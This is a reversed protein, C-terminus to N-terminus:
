MSSYMIGLYFLHKNYLGYDTFAATLARLEQRKLKLFSNTKRSVAASLMPAAKRAQRCVTFQELTTLIIKQAARSWRNFISEPGVADTETRKRALEDATYAVHASHTKQGM